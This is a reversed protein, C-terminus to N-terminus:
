RSTRSSGHLTASPLLCLAGRPISYTGARQPYSPRSQRRCLSLLHTVALHFCILALHCGGVVLPSSGVASGSTVTNLAKELVRNRNELSEKELQVVKLQDALESALKEASEQRDQMALSDIKM